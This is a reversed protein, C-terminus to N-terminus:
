KMWDIAWPEEICRIFIASRLQYLVDLFRPGLWRIFIAPERSDKQQAFKLDRWSELSRQLRVEKKPQIVNECWSEHLYTANSGIYRKATEFFFATLKEPM